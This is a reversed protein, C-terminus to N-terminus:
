IGIGYKTKLINITTESNKHLIGEGGANIWPNIKKESDDILINNKGAYIHKDHEVLVEAPAPHLNNKVWIKKGKEAANVGSTGPSTLIKPSYNKVFNWLEKGDPMWELNAWYDVDDLILAFSLNRFTKNKVNELSFDLGKDIAKQIHKKEFNSATGDQFKKYVKKVKDVIGKEFNCLVGDLDIHLNYKESSTKLDQYFDYENKYM